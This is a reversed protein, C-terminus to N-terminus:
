LSWLTLISTVTLVTEISSRKIKKGRRKKERSEIGKCDVFVTKFSKRCDELSKSDRKSNLIGIRNYGDYRMKLRGILRLIDDLLELKGLM